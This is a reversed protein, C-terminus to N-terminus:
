LDSEGSVSSPLRRPLLLYDHTTPEIDDGVADPLTAYEGDIEVLDHVFCDSRVTLRLPIPDMVDAKEYKEEMRDRYEDQPMPDVHSLLNNDIPDSAQFNFIAEAAMMYKFEPIVRCELGQSVIYREFGIVSWVGDFDESLLLVRIEEM